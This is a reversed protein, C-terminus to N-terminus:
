EDIAHTNEYMTYFNELKDKILKLQMVPEQHITGDPAVAAGLPPRFRGKAVLLM